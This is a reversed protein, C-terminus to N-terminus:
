HKLPLYILEFPSFRYQGRFLNTLTCIRKLYVDATVIGAPDQRARYNPPPPPCAFM